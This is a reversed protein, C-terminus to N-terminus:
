FDYICTIELNFSWDMDNLDIVRSYEDVLQINFNKLNVPGLYERQICKASSLLNDIYLTFAKTNSIPIVSLINNASISSNLLGYINKNVSNNYDDLVLYLYRPGFIDIPAESIYNLSNTYYSNRFGLIWGLKLQLATNTDITNDINYQFNLDISTITIGPTIPPTTGSTKPGVMTQMTGVLQKTADNLGNAGNVTFEVNYIPSLTSYKQLETNIANILTFQDYNGNPIIIVATEIPPNAGVACVTLTFFNNCLKDSIIYYTSPIIISTMVMSIVNNFNAPITINYNTSLTSNYNDRFRSDIVLTKTLLRRKLSNITGPHINSLKLEDKPNPYYLQVPHEYPSVNDLITNKLNYADVYKEEPKNKNNSEDYKDYLIIQKAKILFNLTKDITDKNLERNNLINERLKGEKDDVINKNFNNPLEFMQILEDRDYNEINLDFNM